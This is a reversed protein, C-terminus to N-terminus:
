DVGGVNRGHRVQDRFNKLAIEKPLLDDGYLQDLGFLSLIELGRQIDFDAISNRWSGLRDGGQVM